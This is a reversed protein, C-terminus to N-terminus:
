YRNGNKKLFAYIPLHGELDMSMVVIIAVEQSMRVINIHIPPHLGPVLLLLVELV